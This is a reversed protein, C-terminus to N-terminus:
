LTRHSALLLFSFLIDAFVDVVLITAIHAPAGSSASPTPTGVAHAVLDVDEVAGPCFM